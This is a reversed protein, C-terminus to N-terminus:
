EGNIGLVNKGTQYYFKLLIIWKRFQPFMNANDAKSLYDKLQSLTITRGDSIKSYPLFRLAHKALEPVESYDKCQILLTGNNDLKDKIKQSCDKGMIEQLVKVTDDIDNRWDKKYRLSARVDITDLAKGIGVDPLFGLSMAFMMAATELQTPSMMLFALEYVDSEDLQYSEQFSRQEKDDRVWDLYKRAFCAFPTEEYKKEPDQKILPISVEERHLFQNKLKPSKISDKGALDGNIYFLPRFTGRNLYNHVRLSDICAPIKDRPIDMEITVPLAKDGCKTEKLYEPNKVQCYEKHALFEEKPLNRVPGTMRWIQINEKTYTVLRTRERYKPISSVLTLYYLDSVRREPYSPFVEGSLQPIPDDGYGVWFFQEWTSDEGKRKITGELFDNGFGVKVFFYYTFSEAM